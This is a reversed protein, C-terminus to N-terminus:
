KTIESSEKSDPAPQQGMEPGLNILVKGFYSFQDNALNPTSLSIAVFHFINM